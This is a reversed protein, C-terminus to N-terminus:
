LVSRTHTHTMRVPPTERCRSWVSQTADWREPTSRASECRWRWQHVRWKEAGGVVQPCGILFCPKFFRWLCVSCFGFWVACLTEESSKDIKTDKQQDKLRTEVTKITTKIDIKEMSMWAAWVVKGGREWCEERWKVLRTKGWEREKRERRKKKWDETKWEGTMRKEKVCKGKRKKEGRDEEMCNEYLGWRKNEGEDKLKGRSELSGKRKKRRKETKRNRGKKDEGM